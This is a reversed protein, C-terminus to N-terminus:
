RILMKEIRSYGGSTVKAICFGQLGDARICNIVGRELQKKLILQGSLNYIQIEGATEIGRVFVTRDSSWVSKNSSHLNYIGPESQINFGDSSFSSYQGGNSVIWDDTTPPVYVSGNNLNLVFYDFEDWTYVETGPMGWILPSTEGPELGGNYIFTFIVLTVPLILTGTGGPGDFFFYLMSSPTVGVMYGDWIYTYVLSVGPDPDEMFGDWTLISQDFWFFLQGGAIDEGPTMNEITIPVHVTEGVTGVKVDGISLTIDSANVQM